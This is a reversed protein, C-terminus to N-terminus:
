WPMSMVRGLSTVRNAESKLSKWERYSAGGPDPSMAAAMTPNRTVHLAIEYKARSRILREGDTMWPNDAEDDSAPAAISRFLGLTIPYAQDPVPALLLKSDEVSYWIPQGHMYGLQNYMRIREPPLITLPQLYSGIQALVYDISLFTGINANDSSTYVWQDLVTNFTPPSSPDSDSFRFREKQYIAIADSIASAIQTTLDSRALESAIRSKMSALDNAM